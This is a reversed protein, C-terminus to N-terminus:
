VETKELAALAHGLHKYFKLHAGNERGIRLYYGPQYPCPFVTNKMTSAVPHATEPHYKMWRRWHKAIFYRDGNFSMWPNSGDSFTVHLVM